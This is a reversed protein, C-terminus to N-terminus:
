FHRIKETLISVVLILTMITAFMFSILSLISIGLIKPGFQINILLAAVILFAAVMLGYTIRNSSRDIELSLKKIDTDEIDVKVTGAEIKKMIREARYPFDELLRKYRGFNHSLEKWKNLPNKQHIIIKKIFPEISDVVKFEPDYTMAIGELTIITKGFLVMSAPVKLNHQIALDLIEELIRSLKIENFSAGRLPYIIAGIDSRLEEYDGDDSMGMSSLADLILEDDLEIIGLVVDICKSKLREDFFGVIGFDVFAITDNNVVLINGPHPDAHFVGHIFVQELISNLGIGLLKQFDYRHRKIKQIDSLEIGEIFELTLIKGTSYEDYVRPIKIHRNDRFNEAFKKANRAELKFDLERQTWQKFEEVIRVPRYKKLQEYHKELLSAIYTMIEIDIEMINRTNPRQIKVAVTQGTKLVAKHVQSISASAVPEHEFTKFIKGIPHGLEKEIIFRIENYSVPPVKDQLKELEICYEKPILDPRVSLVQGFKIFTPGLKELVRRLRVEPKVRDSKKFKSKIRGAIPVHKKLKIRELIVDFGEDFLVGLIEKLRGLDRVEKVLNFM